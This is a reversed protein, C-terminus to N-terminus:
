NTPIEIIFTSSTQGAPLGEGREVPDDPRAEKNRM